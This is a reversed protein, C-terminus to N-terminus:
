VSKVTSTLRLYIKGERSEDLDFQERLAIFMLRFSCVFHELQVAQIAGVKQEGTIQM